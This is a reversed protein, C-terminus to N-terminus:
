LTPPSALVTPTEFSLLIAYPAVSSEIPLLESTADVPNFCSYRSNLLPASVFLFNPAYLARPKSPSFNFCCIVVSASPAIIATNFARFLTGLASLAPSIFVNNPSCAISEIDVNDFSVPVSASFMFFACESAAFPDTSM